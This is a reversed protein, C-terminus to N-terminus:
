PLIKLANQHTHTNLCASELIGFNSVLLQTHFLLGITCIKTKCLKCIMIWLGPIYQRCFVDSTNYVFKNYLGDKYGSM